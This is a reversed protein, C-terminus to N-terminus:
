EGVLETQSNLRKVAALILKQQGMPLKSRKMDERDLLQIAEMSTFGDSALKEVAEQSIKCQAAWAAVIQEDTVTHIEVINEVSLNEQASM